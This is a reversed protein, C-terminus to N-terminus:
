VGSALSILGISFIGLFNMAFSVPILVATRVHSFGMIAVGLEDPLPSAIILAGVFPTIWRFTRRKFIAKFKRYKPMQAFYNIDEALTDRIFLFLLLDGLVAGMAGWLAMSLLNTTHALNAFAIISIPTTFVSTFLTGYIISDIFKIGFNLSSVYSFFGIRHLFFGLAVSLAIIIVDRKIKRLHVNQSKVLM